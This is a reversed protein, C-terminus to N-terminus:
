AGREVPTGRAHGVEVAPASEGSGESGDDHAEGQRAAAVGLRGDSGVTAGRSVAAGVGTATAEGLSAGGAM